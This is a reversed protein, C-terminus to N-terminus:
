VRIGIILIDDLQTQGEMWKELTKELHFKQDYMPRDHIEVLLRKLNKSM